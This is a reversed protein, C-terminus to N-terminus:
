RPKRRSSALIEDTTLKSEAASAGPSEPRPPLGKERCAQDLAEVLSSLLADFWAPSLCDCDPRSCEAEVRIFAFHNTGQRLVKILVSQDRTSVTAAVDIEPPRPWDLAAIVVDVPEYRKQSM